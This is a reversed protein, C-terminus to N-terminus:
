PNMLEKGITNLLEEISDFNDGACREHFDFNYIQLRSDNREEVLDAYM